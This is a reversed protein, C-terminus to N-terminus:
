LIKNGNLQGGNHRPMKLVDAKKYYHEKFCEGMVLEFNNKYVLKNKKCYEIHKQKKTYEDERHNKHWERREEVEM